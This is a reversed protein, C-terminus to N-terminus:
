LGYSCDDDIGSLTPIDEHALISRRRAEIDQMDNQVVAISARQTEPSSNRRKLEDSMDAWLKNAGTLVEDAEDLAKQAKNSLNVMNRNFVDEQAKLRKGRDFLDKEYRKLKAEREQLAREKSVVKKEREALGKQKLEVGYELSELSNERKDLYEERKNALYENVSRGAKKAKDKRQARYEPDKYTGDPNKGMRSFDTMDLDELDWGRERMLRPYNRNIDVCLKADILNGCYRGDKDTSRGIVHMHRTYVGDSAGRDEDHHEATMVMNNDDGWWFLRPQIECLADWSDSYFQEYDEDTWGKCMEHPPNFIISYGVVADSRLARECPKGDKTKGKIRYSDAADCIDDWAKGGSKYGEYVNLHSLERDITESKTYRENGAEKCIKEGNGRHKAGPKPEGRLLGLIQPACKM